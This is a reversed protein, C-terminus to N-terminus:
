KKVKERKFFALQRLLTRTVVVGTFLSLIVGLGLTLAFGRVMGSTNLFSWNFPNFLIFCTILTCVNADRISDWARGFGLEMALSAPKGARVEEKMREFVLINADVAMGISLVFGAIGPLTLTVPIVKYLALTILGYIILGLNALVGLYGYYLAMFLIVMGLGILGGQISKQVSEEGLTAGVNKQEVLKIPVPLAGANLQITLQKAEDLAFNGSIVAEGNEIPERVIPATIPFVDLFIAVPKDVNEETIQAFKERGSDNFKLAVVPQGSNPDFQVSARALDKGTLGTPLFDDLTASATAEESLTRFDLQATQGILDIAQNINSIGPLEVILRYDDQFRATQIMPESVGFLNVRREINTKVSELATQKDEASLNEVEAEFVLHSGGALDIGKKVELDRYFRFNGWQLDFIPKEVGMPLVRPLDIYVSVLTILIVLWFVLRTKM